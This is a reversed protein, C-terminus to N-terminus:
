LQHLRLEVNGREDGKGRDRIVVTEVSPLNLFNFVRPEWTMMLYKAPGSALREIARRAQKETFHNLVWLVMYCDAEPLDDALLDFQTVSPHRPVLDYARYRVNGLDTKQMWNLDGAGLDAVSKVGYKQITQPIWKRQIHTNKIRSGSGCPTEPLGGNWGRRYKAPDTIIDPQKVTNSV